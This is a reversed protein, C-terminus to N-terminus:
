WVLRRLQFLTWHKVKNTMVLSSSGNIVSVTGDM